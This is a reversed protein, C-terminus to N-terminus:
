DIWLIKSDAYWDIFKGGTIPSGNEVQGSIYFTREVVKENTAFVLNIGIDSKIELETQPTPLFLKDSIRFQFNLNVDCDIETGASISPAVISRLSMTFDDFTGLRYQAALWGPVQWAVPHFQGDIKILDNINHKQKDEDIILYELEEYKYPSPDV